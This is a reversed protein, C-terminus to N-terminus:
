YTSTAGPSSSSAPSGSPEFSPSSSMSPLPSETFGPRTIPTEVAGPGCAAMALAMLVIGLVISPVRGM